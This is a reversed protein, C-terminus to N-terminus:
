KKFNMSKCKERNLVNPHLFEYVKSRTKRYATQKPQLTQHKKKAVPEPYDDFGQFIRLKKYDDDKKKGRDAKRDLRSIANNWQNIPQHLKMHMSNTRDKKWKLHRSTTELKNQLQNNEEQVIRIWEKKYQSNLAKFDLGLRQSERRILQKFQFLKKLEKQKNLHIQESLEKRERAERKQRSEFANNIQIFNSHFNNSLKRPRISYSTM